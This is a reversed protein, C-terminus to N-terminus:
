DLSSVPELCGEKDQVVANEWDQVLVGGPQRRAAAAFHLM